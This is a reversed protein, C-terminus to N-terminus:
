APITTTTDRAPSIIVKLGIKVDMARPVMMTTSKAM